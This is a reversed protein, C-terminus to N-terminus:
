FGDIPLLGLEGLLRGAEAFTGHHLTVRDGFRSLRARAADLASPDRDIGVLRGSPSSAELIREAHGGGGLTADCYVGGDRPALYALAEDAMVTAHVFHDESTTAAPPVM